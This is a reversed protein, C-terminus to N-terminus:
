LSSQAEYSAKLYIRYGVFSLVKDYNVVVIGFFNSLQTFHLLMNPIHHAHVSTVNEGAIHENAGSIGGPCDEDQM